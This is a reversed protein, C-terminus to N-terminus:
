PNTPVVRFFTMTGDATPVFWGDSVLHLESNPMQTWRSLDSSVQLVWPGSLPRCSGWIWLGGDTAEIHNIEVDPGTWIEPQILSIYGGYFDSGRALTSAPLAGGGLDFLTIARSVRTDATNYTEGSTIDWVRLVVFGVGGPVSGPIEVVGLSFYGDLTFTGSRILVGASDLLELRWRDKALRYGNEDLLYAKRLTGPPTFNNDFNVAGLQAEARFIGGFAWAVMWFALVVRFNM